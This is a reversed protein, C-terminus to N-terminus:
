QEKWYDLFKEREIMLISNGNQINWLFEFDFDNCWKEIDEESTNKISPDADQDTFNAECLIADCCVLKPKIFSNPRKNIQLQEYINM